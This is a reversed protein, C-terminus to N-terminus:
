LNYTLSHTFLYIFEIKNTSNRMLNHQLIEISKKVSSRRLSVLKVWLSCSWASRTLYIWLDSILTSWLPLSLHPLAVHRLPSIVVEGFFWRLFTLIAQLQLYFWWNIILLSMQYCSLIFYISSKEWVQFGVELSVAFDFIVFSDIWKLYSILGNILCCFGWIYVFYWSVVIQSCWSADGSLNRLAWKLIKGFIVHAGQIWSSLLKCAALTWQKPIAVIQAIVWASLVLHM